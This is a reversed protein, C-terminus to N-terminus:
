TTTIIVRTVPSIRGIADIGVFDGYVKQGATCSGWPSTQTLGSALPTGANGVGVLLNRLPSQLTTRTAAQARSTRMFLAAGTTNSWWPTGTWTFTIVGTAAVMAATITGVAAALGMVTPATTLPTIGAEQSLTAHRCFMDFGSVLQTGGMRSPVPTGAAYAEWESRETPTLAAWLAGCATLANRAAIQLATRPNAPDVRTRCVAGTANKTYVVNGVKGSLDTLLSSLKIRAM